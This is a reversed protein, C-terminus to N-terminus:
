SARLDAHVLELWDMGSRVAGVFAVGVRHDDPLSWAVRAGLMVIPDPSGDELDVVLWVSEGSTPADTVRAHAGGASVDELAVSITALRGGIMRVLWGPVAVPFRVQRRRRDRDTQGFRHELEELRALEEHDLIEHRLQHLRLARYEYIARITAMAAAREAMPDLDAAATGFLSLPLSTDIPSPGDDIPMPVGSAGYPQTVQEPRSPSPAPPAVARPPEPEDDVIMPVRESTTPRWTTRPTSTSLEERPPRAVTAPADERPGDGSLDGRPARPLSTTPNRPPTPVIIESTDDRVVERPGDAARTPLRATGNRGRMGTGPGMGHEIRVTQRLVDMGRMAAPRHEVVHDDVEEFRLRCRGIVIEDGSLLEARDVRAGRVFSGSASSLDVLMARGDDGVEIRAHRRSVEPSAIQVDCDAARGITMRRKVIVTLDHPLGAIARLVSRMSMSSDLLDAGRSRM